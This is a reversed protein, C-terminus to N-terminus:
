SDPTNIPDEELNYQSLDIQNDNGYLQNLLHQNSLLSQALHHLSYLGSCLPRGFQNVLTLGLRNILDLSLIFTTPTYVSQLQHGWYFPKLVEFAKTQQTESAPIQKTRVLLSAMDLIQAVQHRHYAPNGGPILEARLNSPAELNSTSQHLVTQLGYYSNYPVGVAGILVWKVAKSRYVSACTNHASALQPFSASLGLTLLSLKLVANKQRKKILTRIM